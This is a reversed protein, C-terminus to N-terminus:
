RSSSPSRRGHHRLGGASTSAPPARGVRYLTPSSSVADFREQLGDVGGRLRRLLLFRPSVVRELFLGSAPRVLERADRRNPSFGYRRRVSCCRARVRSWCVSWASRVMKWLFRSGQYPRSDSTRGGRRRGDWRNQGNTKIRGPETALIQLRATAAGGTGCATSTSIERVWWVTAEPRPHARTRCSAPSADHRAHFRHGVTEICLIHIDSASTTSANQWAAPLTTAIDLHAGARAAHVPLPRATARAEESRSRASRRTRARRSM